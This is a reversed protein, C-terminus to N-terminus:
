PQNELWKLPPLELAAWIKRALKLAAKSNEVRQFCLEHLHHHFARLDQRYQDLLLALQRRDEPLEVANKQLESCLLLAQVLEEGYVPISQGAADLLEYQGLLEQQIILPAVFQYHVMQPQELFYLYKEPFTPLGEDQLQKILQQRLPKGPLNEAVQPRNKRSGPSRQLDLIEPYQLREALFKDVPDLRDEEAGCTLALEELLGAEPHPWGIQIARRYLETAAAPPQTDCLLQWLQQGLLSEAYIKLGGLASVSLAEEGSTILQNAYLQYLTTPLQLALLIRSRLLPIERTPVVQRQDDGIVIRIPQEADAGRLLNLECSQENRKVISCLQYNELLLPWFPENEALTLAQSPLILSLREAGRYLGLLHVTEWLWLPTSTTLRFRRNPWSTRLLSAYQQHATRGPIQESTLTAQIRGQPLTEPTFQLLNGSYQQRLPQQQLQELLGAAALLAPSDSLLTDTEAALRPAPPYFCIQANSNQTQEPFWGDILLRLATLAREKPQDWSLQQLRLLLHHFCVTTEHPLSTKSEAIKWCLAQQLSEPLQPLSIEIARELKEPLIASPLQQYWLLALLQLLLQRNAETAQRDADGSTTETEQARQSRYNNLLPPLSIELTTQFLNHLYHASLQGPPILGIVALLKLAELLEELLHRFSDPHELNGLPFEQHQNVTKGDLQWIRVRDTEWTVFNRLGLAEACCRGRELETPLDREPLLLIGGAMMSQRNIWFILPPQLVGQETQIQPYLDVRRFPTRGNEIVLETWIVLQNAFQQLDPHNTM